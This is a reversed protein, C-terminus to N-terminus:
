HHGNRGYEGSLPDRKGWVLCDWSLIKVLFIRDMFHPISPQGEDEVDITDVKERSYAGRFGRLCTGRIFFGIRYGFFSATKKEFMGDIRSLIGALVEAFGICRNSLM